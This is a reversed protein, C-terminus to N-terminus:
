VGVLNEGAQVLAQQITCALVALTHVRQTRGLSTAIAPQRHAQMSTLLICAECLTSAAQAPAHHQQRPWLPLSTATTCLSGPLQQMCPSTLTHGLVAELVYHAAAARTPPRPRPWFTSREAASLVSSFSFM